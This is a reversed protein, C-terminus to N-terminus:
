RAKTFVLHKSKYTYHPYQSYSAGLPRNTYGSIIGVAGYESIAGLGVRIITPAQNIYAINHIRYGKAQLTNLLKIFEARTPLEVAIPSAGTALRALIVPLTITQM